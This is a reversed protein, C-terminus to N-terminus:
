YSVEGTRKRLVIIMGGLAEPDPLPLAGVDSTRGSPERWSDASSSWSNWISRICNSWSCRSRWDTSSRRRRSSCVETTGETSCGVMAVISTPVPGIGRLIDWDETKDVKDRISFIGLSDALSDSPIM